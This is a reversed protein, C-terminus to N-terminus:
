NKKVIGEGKCTPCQVKHTNMNGCIRVVNGEGECEPCKKYIDERM